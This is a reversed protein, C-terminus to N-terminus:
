AAGWVQEEEWGDFEDATAPHRAYGAAHKVELERLSLRRLALQVADRIFASRNAGLEAVAKDVDELLQEDITIQITKM